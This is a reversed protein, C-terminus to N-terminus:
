FLQGSVHNNTIHTVLYTSEHTEFLIYWTTRQNRKYFLYRLNDGYRSFTLPAIKSPFTSISTEIFDIIDQAYAEALEYTSLYDDHVLVEILEYLEDVVEPAYVVSKM